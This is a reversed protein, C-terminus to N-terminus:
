LDKLCNKIYPQDLLIDEVQEVSLQETNSSDYPPLNLDLDEQSTYTKYNLERLDAPIRYYYELEEAKVM